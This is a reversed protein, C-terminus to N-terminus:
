LAAADALEGDRFWRARGAATDIKCFNPVKARANPNVGPNFSYASGCRDVWHAPSHIHGSLVWRPATTSARIADGLDLDGADAGGANTRATDCGSPPVHALLVSGSCLEPIPGRWGVRIFTHGIVEAHGSQSFAKSGPLRDLWRGSSVPAEQIETDHNGSTWLLPRQLTRAWASIWRVQSALPEKGFLNLFDGTYAILDFEEAHETVWDFWQRNAHFDTVHLLKM